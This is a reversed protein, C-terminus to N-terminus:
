KKNNLMGKRESLLGAVSRDAMDNLAQYCEPHLHWKFERKRAALNKSFQEPYIPKGCVQCIMLEGPKPRPPITCGNKTYDRVDTDENM